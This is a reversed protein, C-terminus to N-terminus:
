TPAEGSMERLLTDLEELLQQLSDAGLLAYKISENLPLLQGLQYGVAWGDDLSVPLNLQSVQPHRILGGLVDALSAYQKPLPVSEQPPQLSVKAKILGDAERWTSEIAFRQRGEITIGLLGNPLQDWDVISAYTGMESVNPVDLSGGSVESGQKLLVVGFGENDRMCRAVLDLYRQEFIQLPIRAQPMLVSSLPFLAIETLM